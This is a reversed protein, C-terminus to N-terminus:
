KRKYHNIVVGELLVDQKTLWYERDDYGLDEVDFMNIGEGIPLERLWPVHVTRVIGDYKTSVILIEDWEDCYIM